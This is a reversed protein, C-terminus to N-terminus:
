FEDRPGKTEEIGMKCVTEFFGQYTDANNLLDDTWLQVEPGKYPLTYRVPNCWPDSYGKDHTRHWLHTLEHVLVGAQSIPSELAWWPDYLYIIEDSDEETSGFYDPGADGGNVIKLRKKSQLLGHEMSEFIRYVWQCDADTLLRGRDPALSQRQFYLELLSRTERGEVKGAAPRLAHRLRLTVIQLGPMVMHAIVRHIHAAQTGSWDQLAIAL